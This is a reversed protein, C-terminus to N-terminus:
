GGGGASASASATQNTKAQLYLPVVMEIPANYDSLRNTTMLSITVKIAQPMKPDMTTSDWTDTWDTGNHYQITVSDVGGLLRESEPTDGMPALLNRSVSRYLDRGLSQRDSPTQLFYAVRQIDGWPTRDDLEGSRTKFEPGVPMATMPMMASATLTESSGNTSVTTTLTTQLDGAFTGSGPLVLNAFDVRLLQLARQLPYANDVSQQSKERLRMAGFLVGSIAALVLSSAVVAIMIEMLTFAQRRSRVPLRATM